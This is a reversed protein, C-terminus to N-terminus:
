PNHPPPRFGADPSTATASASASAEGIPVLMPLARPARVGQTPANDDKLGPRIALLNLGLIVFWAAILAVVLRQVIAVAAMGRSDTLVYAIGGACVLLGLLVSFDAFARWSKSSRLAPGIVVMAIGLFGFTPWVVDNHITGALTEAQPTADTPFTALLVAGLASLWLLVLGARALPSGPLHSQLALTLAIGGVAFSYAGAVWLWPYRSRAFDSLHWPESPMSAAHLALVALIFEAVGAIGLWALFQLRQSVAQPAV